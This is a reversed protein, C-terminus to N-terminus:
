PSELLATYAAADLLSDLGDSPAIAIIWGETYPAENVREPHDKLGDNIAVLTGSIPAFLDSVSKTSEVVGFAAGATLADGIRADVSVLIVDGLQEAAHATIGVTVRDGEVRAWEHDRTYKLESPVESM